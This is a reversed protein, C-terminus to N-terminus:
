ARDLRRRGGSVRRRILTDIREQPNDLHALTGFNVIHTARQLGNLMAMSAEACMQALVTEAHCSPGLRRLQGAVRYGTHAIEDTVQEFATRVDPRLRDYADLAITRGPLSSNAFYERYSVLKWALIDDALEPMAPFNEVLMIIENFLNLYDNAIGSKPNVLALARAELNDLARAPQPECPRFVAPQPM